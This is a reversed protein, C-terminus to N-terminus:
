SRVTAADTVDEADFLSAQDPEASDILDVLREATGPVGVRNSGNGRSGGFHDALALLEEQVRGLRADLTADLDWGSALRWVALRAVHGSFLCRADGVSVRVGGRALERLNSLLAHEFGDATLETPDGGTRVGSGTARCVFVSDLVSSGTGHIHLSAGM